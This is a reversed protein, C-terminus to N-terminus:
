DDNSEEQENVFMLCCVAHMLHPLGTEQDYTEGRRYANLHRGAAALYKESRVSRWNDPGYKEAGFTLVEALQRESVPPILDFRAKGGDRKM